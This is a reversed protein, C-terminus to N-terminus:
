RTGGQLQINRVGFDGGENIIALRTFGKSFARDRSKLISERDLLLEIDGYNTMRWELEHSQGDNIDPLKIREILMNRGRYRQFLELQPEPGTNLALLYGYDTEKGQYIAFQLHGNESPRNHVSLETRLAFAVPITIPLQIEARTAEEPKEEQQKEQQARPRKEKPKLAESLIAGLLATGIDQKQSRENEEEQKQEQRRTEERRRPYIRSRLGISSDVWFEGSVVNWHPQQTFDGDSFDEFLLEERWPWEYKTVLDDLSRLLWRDASREKRAKETLDRIQDVLEQAEKNYEDAAFLSPASLLLLATLLIPLIHRLHM